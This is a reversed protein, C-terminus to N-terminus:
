CDCSGSCVRSSRHGMGIPSNRDASEDAPLEVAADDGCKQKTARTAM